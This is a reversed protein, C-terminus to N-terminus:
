SIYFSAEQKGFKVFGVKNLQRFKLLVIFRPLLLWLHFFIFNSLYAGSFWVYFVIILAIGVFLLQFHLRKLTRFAIYGSPMYGSCPIKWEFSWIDRSPDLTMHLSLRLLGWHMAYVVLAGVVFAYLGEKRLAYLDYSVWVILLLIYAALLSPAFPIKQILTYNYITSNESIKSEKV